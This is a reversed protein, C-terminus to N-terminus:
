SAKGLLAEPKLNLIAFLKELKDAEFKRKGKLARSFVSPHLDIQKALTKHKLGRSDIVQRLAQLSM